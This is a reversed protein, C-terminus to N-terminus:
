RTRSHPRASGSVLEAGGSRHRAARILGLGAGAETLGVLATSPHISGLTYSYLLTFLPEGLMALGILGAAGWLSRALRAVVWAVLGAGLSGAVLFFAINRNLGAFTHFIRAQTAYFSILSILAMSAGTAAARASWSRRTSVAVALWCPIILWPASLNGAAYRLGSGDGKVVAVGVGYGAALM